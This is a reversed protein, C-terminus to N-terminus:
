HFPEATREAVYSTEHGPDSSSFGSPAGPTNNSPTGPALFSVGNTYHHATFLEALWPTWDTASDLSDKIGLVLLFDLGANADEPNLKARIGMGAQEAADFD